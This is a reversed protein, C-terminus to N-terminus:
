HNGGCLAFIRYTYVVIDVYIDYGVYNVTVNSIVESSFRSWSLEKRLLLVVPGTTYHNASQVRFGAIRTWIEAPGVLKKLKSEFWHTDLKSEFLTFRKINACKMFATEVQLWQTKYTFSVQIKNVSFLAGSTPSSGVVRPNSSSQHNADLLGM